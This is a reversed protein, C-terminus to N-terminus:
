RALEKQTLFSKRKDKADNFTKLATADNAAKAKSYAAKYAAQLAPLDPANDIAALLEDDTSATAEPPAEGEEVGPPPAGYLDGKHWFELAMGFRMGANRLADGIIEKVASPGKKGDADGYGLRTVGCVTLRIWMGGAADMLPLGREDHALPEWTWSPDADLLRHTLAAHGVYNLHAAPMGHKTRCVNCWEKPADKSYPKPLVGVQNDPFPARLLALGKIEDSM